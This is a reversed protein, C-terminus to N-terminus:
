WHGEVNPNSTKPIIGNKFANISDMVSGEKFLYIDIGASNLTAFAKPGVNGTILANAGSDIVTKASQIGAGQASELNQKNDIYDTSETETDYIIFGKARGFRSDMRDNLEKGESSIAIKM